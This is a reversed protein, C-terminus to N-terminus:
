ALPLEDEAAQTATETNAQPAVPHEGNGNGNQLRVVAPRILRGQFTYGNALTEDVAADEAPLPQGDVLQHRQKNFKEASVAIFPTLGVRRAADHCAVQFRGLQEAVGPQRSQVAARNLAHVHDLIRVLVQLWEAEIRRLKDVELRLSNKESDNSQKLFEQFSKAETAMGHAIEKAQRSTKEASEQVTQWQATATSIQTALQEINQVQSVVSTLACTEVLKEASRYELVYPWVSFVAGLGICAFCALIEWGGMPRKSQYVTFWALALLLASGLFFPWKALRPATSDQM